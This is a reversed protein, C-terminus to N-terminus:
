HSSGKVKYFVTREKCWGQGEYKLISEELDDEQRQLAATKIEARGRRDTREWCPGTRTFSHQPNNNHQELQKRKRECETGRRHAEQSKTLHNRCGYALPVCRDYGAEVEKGGSTGAWSVTVYLAM